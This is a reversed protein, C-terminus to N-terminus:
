LCQPYREQVVSLSLLRLTEPYYLSDPVTMLDPPVTEGHAACRALAFIARYGLGGMAAGSSGTSVDIVSPDSAPSFRAFDAMLSQPADGDWALYLPIRVADYAFTAPYNRAPAPKSGGLAVWDVPLGLPGFRGAELLRFGSRRLEAWASKPCLAALDRMAPFVWYSPNVVPGDPQEGPGFGAIGPLLVPGIGSPRVAKAAVAGAISRAADEYDTRGFRKGARALAWAILLDGDTADNRDAVEGRKPDWKWAFLGDPRIRLHAVTWRWILAFGDPDDAAFALLLGYGQGESHSVDANANDIVRGDPSVFRARYAAWQAKFWNKAARGVVTSTAADVIGPSLAADQVRAGASATGVPVANFLLACATLLTPLQSLARRM